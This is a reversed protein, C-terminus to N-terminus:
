RPRLIFKIQALRDMNEVLGREIIIRKEEYVEEGIERKGYREELKELEKVLTEQKKQLYRLRRKIEDENVILGGFFM